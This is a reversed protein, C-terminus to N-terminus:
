DAAKFQRAQLQAQEYTLGLIKRLKKQYHEPLGALFCIKLMDARIDIFHHGILEPHARDFKQELRYVYQDIDEDSSCKLNCLELRQRM